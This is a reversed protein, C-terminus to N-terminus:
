RRMEGGSLDPGGPYKTNTTMVVIDPKERRLMTEADKNLEDIGYRESFIRLRKRDRDVGAVLTFDPRDHLAEAHSSPLGENGSHNHHHLKRYVDFEPTPRDIVDVHWKGSCEGLDYLIGTWGLGIVAARYPAM